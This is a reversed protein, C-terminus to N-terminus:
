WPLKRQKGRVQQEEDENPDKKRRDKVCAHDISESPPPTTL